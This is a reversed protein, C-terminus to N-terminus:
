LFVQFRCPRLSDRKIGVPVLAEFDVDVDVEIYVLMMGIGAVIRARGLGEGAVGNHVGSEGDYIAALKM